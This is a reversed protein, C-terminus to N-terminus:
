QEWRARHATLISGQGTKSGQSYDTFGTKFMRTKISFRRLAKYEQERELECSVYRARLGMTYGRPIEKM